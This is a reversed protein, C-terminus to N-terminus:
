EGEPDRHGTRHHVNPKLLNIDINKMRIMQTRISGLLFELNRPEISSFVFTSRYKSVDPEGL